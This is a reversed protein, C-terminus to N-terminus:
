GTADRVAAIRALGFDITGPRNEGPVVEEFPAIKVATFGAALADRASAAFGHPSRDRTRRNINAYLPIESRVSGGLMDAVTRGARKGAIDWLAQDLASVCAAEVLGSPGPLAAPVAHPIAFADKALTQVHARVDAEKGNLSAEGVGTLGSATTIQLFTWRTRPNVQLVHT